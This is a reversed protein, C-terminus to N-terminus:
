PQPLRGLSTASLSTVWLSGDPDRVAGTTLPYAGSPDQWVQDVSGDPTLRIVFGHSVAKPRIAAPLRQIIKRLFPYGALQDALPVRKSVLGLLFGGDVDRKINDPFGPLNEHLTEVEGARDGNIWLRRIRTEGTEVFLLWDGSASMAVGNAFSVGSLMEKTEGTAPDHRLLRGTRGHEFIELYSAELTGGFAEAGFKTSAESFWVSGDPAFDLSNAYVIRQGADDRDAVAEVGNATARMLGRYADAIWVSGDPHAEIGLPRGGTVAFVSMEGSPDRRLIDGEGTTIYLAQDIGIAADEPGHRGLIDHRELGALRDNPAYPGIYGTTPTPTWAVPEIPVPWFLLYALCALILAGITQLIRKMLCAYRAPSHLGLDIVLGTIREGLVWRAAGRVVCQCNLDPPLGRRKSGFVDRRLGSSRLEFDSVKRWLFVPAAM